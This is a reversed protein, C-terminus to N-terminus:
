LPRVFRIMCRDAIDYMCGKLFASQDDAGPERSANIADLREVCLAHFGPGDLNLEGAVLRSRLSVVEAKVRDQLSEGLEAEMYRPTRSFKAYRRRLDVALEVVDQPLTAEEMKGRLKGGSPASAGSILEETRTEWWARLETRLIIKKHKESSWKADGAAKVRRRLEGLLLEAQDFLLARGERGSLEILRLLNEKRITAENHRVDWRCNAIWYDACNGKDSSSGPCREEIAALLTRCKDGDPNRAPADVDYTLLKLDSNVDRLTVIRFRTEEKHRDRALSTEFISTGAKGKKRQCLTAVSWLQDPEGAKVQVFEAIREPAGLNARVVLIDDHTECHIKEIDPCELMDLLFSVAIEDQYSFGTRAIPGGEEVPLADDVSPWDVAEIDTEDSM